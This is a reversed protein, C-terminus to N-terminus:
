IGSNCDHLPMIKSLCCAAVLPPPHSCIPADGELRWNATMGASKAAQARTYFFLVPSGGAAWCSGGCSFGSWCDHHRWGTALGQGRTAAWCQADRWSPGIAAAAPTGAVAPPPAWAGVAVWGGGVPWGSRRCKGAQGGPGPERSVLAGHSDQRGVRTAPRVSADTPAWDTLRRRSDGRSGGGGRCRSCYAGEWDPPWM